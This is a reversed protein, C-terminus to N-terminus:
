YNKKIINMPQPKMPLFMTEYKVIFSQAEAIRTTSLVGGCIANKFASCV